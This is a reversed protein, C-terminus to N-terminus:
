MKQIIKDDKRETKEIRNNKCTYVITIIGVLFALAMLSIGITQLVTGAKSFNDSKMCGKIDIALGCGFVLADTLAFITWAVFHCIPNKNLTQTKNDRENNSLETPNSKNNTSFIINSNKLKKNNADKKIVKMEIEHNHENANHNKTKSSRNAISKEESKTRDFADLNKNLQKNSSFNNGATETLKVMIEQGAGYWSILSYVLGSISKSLKESIEKINNENELLLAQKKSLLEQQQLKSQKAQKTLSIFFKTFINKDQGNPTPFELELLQNKVLQITSKKLREIDDMEANNHIGFSVCAKFAISKEPNQQQELIFIWQTVKLVEEGGWEVNDPKEQSNKVEDLLRKIKKEYNNFSLILEFIAASNMKHTAKYALFLDNVNDLVTKIAPLIEHRAQQTWHHENINNSIYDNYIKNEELLKIDIPSNFFSNKKQEPSFHENM